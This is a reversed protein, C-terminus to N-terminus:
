DRLEPIAAIIKELEDTRKPFITKFDDSQYKLPFEFDGLLVRVVCYEIGKQSELQDYPSRENRTTYKPPLANQLAEESSLDFHVEIFWIADKLVGRFLEYSEALSLVGSADAGTRKEFKVSADKDDVIMPILPLNEPRLTLLHSISMMNVLSTDRGFGLLQRTLKNARKNDISMSPAVMTTGQKFGFGMHVILVSHRLAKNVFQGSKFEWGPFEEAVRDCIDFVDSKFTSM